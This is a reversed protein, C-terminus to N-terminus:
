RQHHNLTTPVDRNQMAFYSKGLPIAQSDLFTQRKVSAGNFDFEIAIFQPASCFLNGPIVGLGMWAILRKGTGVGMVLMNGRVYFVM